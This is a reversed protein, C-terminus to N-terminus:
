LRWPNPCQDSIVTAPGGRELTGVLPGYWAGIVDQNRKFFGQFVSSKRSATPDFRHNSARNKNSNSGTHADRRALNLDLVRSGIRTSCARDM